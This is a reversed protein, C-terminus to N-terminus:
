VGPPAFHDNDPEGKGANGSGLPDFPDFRPKMGTNKSDRNPFKNGDQTFMPHDKGMLNGNVGFSEPTKDKDFDGFPKFPPQCNSKRDSM